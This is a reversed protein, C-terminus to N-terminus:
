FSKTFKEEHTIVVTCMFIHKQIIIIAYMVSSSSVTTDCFYSSRKRWKKKSCQVGCLSDGRAACDVVSFCSGTNSGSIDRDFCRVVVVCM